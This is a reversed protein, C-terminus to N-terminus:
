FLCRIYNSPPAYRWFHPPLGRLHNCIARDAASDVTDEAQIIESVFSRKAAEFDQEDIHELETYVVKKAQEYAQELQASRYISLELLQNDPSVEIRVTYALGKGRIAKWLPGEAQSLYQALLQVALLEDSGWNHLFNVSQELFSAECAAVSIVRQRGFGSKEISEGPTNLFANCAEPNLRNCHLLWQLSPAFSPMIEGTNCVIHLNKPANLLALRLVELKNLVETPNQETQKLVNQHFKELQLVGYIYSNSNGMEQVLEIAM